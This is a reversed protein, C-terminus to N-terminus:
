IDNNIKEGHNGSRILIIDIEFGKFTKGYTIRYFLIKINSRFIKQLKNVLIKIIKLPLYVIKKM